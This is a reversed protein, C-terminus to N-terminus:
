ATVRSARSAESSISDGNPRFAAGSIEKWFGQVRCRVSRSECVTHPAECFHLSTQRLLHPRIGALFFAAFLFGARRLAAFFFVVAAFFGAFRLAALRLVAFLALFFYPGNPVVHLPGNPGRKTIWLGRAVIVRHGIRQFGHAIFDDRARLARAQDFPPVFGRALRRSSIGTLLVP